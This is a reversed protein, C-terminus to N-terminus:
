VAAIFEATEIHKARMLCEPHKGGGIKILLNLVAEKGVHRVAYADAELEELLASPNLGLARMPNHALLKLLGKGTQCAALRHAIHGCKVHGVEHAVLADYVAAERAATNVVICEGVMPLHLAAGNPVGEPTGLYYRVYEDSLFVKIGDVCDIANEFPNEFRGVSQGFKISYKVAKQLYIASELVNM